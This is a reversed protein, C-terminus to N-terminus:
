TYARQLTHRMAGGEVLTMGWALELWNEGQWRVVNYSDHRPDPPTILEVRENAATRRGINAALAAAQAVSAVPVEYHEPVVFGRGAISHPASSPIDYTSYVPLSVGSGDTSETQTNNSIVVIRNPTLVLDNIESISDQQVFQREDWTFDLVRTSPDFSRIIHLRGDNGFWPPLYDGFMALDKIVASRRTGAPWSGMSYFPTPEIHIDVPLDQLLRRITQEVNEVKAPAPPLQTVSTFGLSIPQDVLFMEDFMSASLWRGGALTLYTVDGFMYRGLPYDVGHVIMTLDVRDRMHNVRATDAPTLLVPSLSRAIARSTDHTLSPPSSRSPNIVGKVEGTVGDRLDFRFTASRHGVHAALDLDPTAGDLLTFTHAWRSGHAM